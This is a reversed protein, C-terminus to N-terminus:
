RVRISKVATWSSYVRKGTSDLKWARVRFYYRNNSVLPYFVRSLGTAPYIKSDAMNQRLSIEVQYGTAGGTPASWSVTVAKRYRSTIKVSKPKSVTVKEWHAYLTINGEGITTSYYKTGEKKDDYWGKFRYGERVPDEPKTATTGQTVKIPNVKPAGTYNLNFQVNFQRESQGTEENCVDCIGDKNQDIHTHLTTTEGGRCGILILSIAVLLILSLLGKKM